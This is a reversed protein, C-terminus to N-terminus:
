EITLKEIYKAITDKNTLYDFWVANETRKFWTMQRKAFRRTNQKIQEKAFELTCKGEFYDFLERYGVTQLANREKHPLLQKVEEVLGAEFMLDVRQNIRDYMIERDSELGIIIPTFNRKINRKGIFDSYPLGSGVCVEVFRKMRQPNQLTQPNEKELKNYYNLDLEQLKEQLFTIGLADFKSNIETRVGDEIDPFEDFGKLVADVYLGSGGVMIQINNKAFLEDLKELAEKEFDGVSYKDFISKNQIFHHPAAALEDESPVATGIKMEKFFQRSDCSIIECGFHQALAISLSTKGIATPGIITILYNL